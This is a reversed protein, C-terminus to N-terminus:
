QCDIQAEEIGLGAFTVDVLGTFYVRPEILVPGDVKICWELPHHPRGNSIKRNALIKESGYEVLDVNVGDGGYEGSRNAMGRYSIKFWGPYLWSLAGYGIVGAAHEGARAIIQEGDDKKRLVGTDYRFSGTPLEVSFHKSLKLKILRPPNGRQLRYYSRDPFLKILGLWEDPHRTVVLPDSNLGKENLMFLLQQPWHPLFVISKPPTNDLVRRIERHEDYKSSLREISNYTHLIVGLILAAMMGVSIVRSLNKVRGLRNLITTVGMGAGVMLFPLSEFYYVPGAEQIGEYWFFVYGMPLIIIGGLLLPTISNRWGVMVLILVGVLSGRWGLLWLDLSKLNDWLVTLGRELTHYTPEGRTHRMGFGLGETPDYYFYTMTFADGVALYNYVLVGIVGSFSSLVFVVTATLAPLNRNRSLILLSTVGFPIALLFATYPRGMFLLGWGIGAIVLWYTRRKLLWSIYGWLMMSTCALGSTHNLLTGHMFIFYPSCLLLLIVPGARVGLVRVTLIILLLSLGATFATMMYPNGIAIGPVLWLSHLPSYRSLWGVDVDQIIMQHQMTRGFPPAERAILGDLFNNAQFVYSGEDTTLFSHHFAKLGVLYCLLVTIAVIIFLQLKTLRRPSLTTPRLM